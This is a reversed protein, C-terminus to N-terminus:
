KVQLNKKQLEDFASWKFKDVLKESFEVGKVSNGHSDLRPSWISIGCVNPVVLMICGSVGSKAPLGVTCAWEGSYDYMGCSFFIKLAGSVTEDSLCRKGTTPCIGYNAYSSSITALQESSVAISCNQLYFALSEDIDADKPFANRSAMFYSLSM